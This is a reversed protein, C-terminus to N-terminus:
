SVEEHPHPGPQAQDPETQDPEPESQDSPTRPMTLRVEVGEGVTARVEARGRRREMRGIISTRIGLRDSPVAGPDFGPGRDRVFVSAQQPEVEAYVSVPAVQGAYKAANVMAERSAQLLANLQEDVGADGVVVVEITGGHTDEVEAAIEELAVRFTRSDGSRPRYLWQRLSREETRALRLVARPDDASRQILTLTQLVSDHVHAALDAREQSRIRERREDRLDRTASMIWPGAVLALGTLLVLAGALGNVAAQLGGRAALLAIVGALM